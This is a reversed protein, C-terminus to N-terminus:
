KKLLRIFEDDTMDAQKLASRLTKEPLTKGHIPITVHLDNRTNHKLRVHSGKQHQIYFGSKLLIQLLNHGNITPLKPM